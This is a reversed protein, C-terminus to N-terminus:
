IERRDRLEELMESCNLNFFQPGKAGCAEFLEAVSDVVTQKMKFSSAWVRAGEKMRIGGSKSFGLRDLNQHDFGFGLFHVEQTQALWARACQCAKLCRDSAERAIIDIGQSAPYARLIPEKSRHRFRGAKDDFLVEADLSGYVHVTVKQLEELLAMAGLRPFRGRLITALLLTLSRDYNFTVFRTSRVFEEIGLNAALDAIYRYPGPLLDKQALSSEERPLLVAAIAALGHERHHPNESLFTDITPRAFSGLDRSLRRAGERIREEEPDEPPQDPEWDDDNAVFSVYPGSSGLECAELLLSECDNVLIDRLERGIPFGYEASAGAGLVFVRSLDHIEDM